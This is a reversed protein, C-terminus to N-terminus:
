SSQLHSNRAHKCNSKTTNSNPSQRRLRSCIDNDSVRSPRQPNSKSRSEDPVASMFPPLLFHGQPLFANQSTSVANQPSFSQDQSTPNQTDDFIDEIWSPPTDM